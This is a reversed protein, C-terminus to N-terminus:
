RPAICEAEQEEVEIYEVELEDGAEVSVLSSGCKACVFVPADAEWGIGCDACRLRLEVEELVLRAGECESDRAVIEFYFRLSEPVVQRLRGVRMTVETVMRGEAHKCATNVVASAISLEHM